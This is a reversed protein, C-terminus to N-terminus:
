DVLGSRLFNNVTPECKIAICDLCAIALAHEAWLDGPKSISVTDYILPKTVSIGGYGALDM